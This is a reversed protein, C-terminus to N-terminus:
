GTATGALRERNRWELLALTGVVLAEGAMHLLGYVSARGVFAAAAVICLLSWVGNAVALRIILALPRSPRRALSLSYTGYVLNATGSLVVLWQPVAYLESLWGSVSLVVVGAALGGTCDFWLLRDAARLYVGATVAREVAAPPRRHVVPAADDPHGDIWGMFLRSEPTFKFRIM